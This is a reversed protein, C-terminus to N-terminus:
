GLYESMWAVYDALAKPFPYQPEYGLQDRSRSLDAHRINEGSTALYSPPGELKVRAGPGLRQLEEVVQGPQVVSGSNINFVRNQLGSAHCALVTGLAADKSYVYEMSKSRYVAEEGKLAKEVVERMMQTPEGGGGRGGWPGFAAGYRVAVFDVGFWRQYNLGLNEGTQKTTAYFTAPRPFMEETNGEADRVSEFTSSEDLAPDMSSYLVSSSSFVVRELEFIRAAELVNATGMINLRIAPLPNVQAGATLTANAATHIIRSISHERIVGALSFPDLIDGQVLKIKIPDVLQGIAAPQPAIEMVVPQEDREVLLRAIQSGILGSGIILTTM